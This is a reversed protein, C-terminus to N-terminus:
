IAHLFEPDQRQQGLLMKMRSKVSTTLPNLLSLQLVLRSIDLNQSKTRKIDSTQRYGANLTM